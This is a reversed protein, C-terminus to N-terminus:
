TMILPTDAVSVGSRPQALIMIVFDAGEKLMANRLLGPKLQKKTYLHIEKGELPTLGDAWLSTGILPKFSLFIDKKSPTPKGKERPPAKFFFNRVVVGKGIGPDEIRDSQAQIQQAGWKIDKVPANQADMEIFDVKKSLTDNGKRAGDDLGAM